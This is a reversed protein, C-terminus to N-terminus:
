KDSQSVSGLLRLTNCIEELSAFDVFDADTSMGLTEAGTAELFVRNSAPSAQLWLLGLAVGRFTVFWINWESVWVWFSFKTMVWKGEHQKLFVFIKFITSTTRVFPALGKLCSLIMFISLTRYKLDKHSYYHLFCEPFHWVLLFDATEYWGKLYWSPFCHHWLVEIIAKFSDWITCTQLDLPAELTAAAAAHSLDHRWTTHFLM